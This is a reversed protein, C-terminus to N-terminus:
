VLELEQELEQFPVQHQRHMKRNRHNHKTKSAKRATLMEVRKREETRAILAHRIAREQARKEYWHEMFFDSGVKNVRLRWADRDAAVIKWEDHLFGFNELAYQAAHRFGRPPAGQKRKGSILGGHVIIKQLRHDNMREIHGLYRLQLKLLKCELPVIKCGAKRCRWLVNEYSIKRLSQLGFLKKLLQFQTKDLDKINQISLNWSSCGYMGNPVVIM